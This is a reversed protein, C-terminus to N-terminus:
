TRLFLYDLSVGYYEAMKQMTTASPTRIGAEYKCLASYSIGVAKAVKTKPRIDRVEQLRKGIQIARETKDM